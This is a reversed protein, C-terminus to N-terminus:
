LELQRIHPVAVINKGERAQRKVPKVWAFPLAINHESQVRKREEQTAATSLEVLVRGAKKVRIVWFHETTEDINCTVLTQQSGNADEHCWYKPVSEVKERRERTLIADKYNDRSNKSFNLKLPTVCCTFIPFNRVFTLRNEM